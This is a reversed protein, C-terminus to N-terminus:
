KVDKLIFDIRAGLHCNMKFENFYQFSNTNADKLNIKLNFVLIESTRISEISANDFQASARSYGPRVVNGNYLIDSKEIEMPDFSYLVNGANDAFHMNLTGMVPFENWINIRFFLYNIDDSNEFIRYLDVAVSDTFYIYDYKAWGPVNQTLFWNPPGIHYTESLGVAAKAVPISLSLDLDEVKDPLPQLGGFCSTLLAFVIISIYRLKKLLLLM